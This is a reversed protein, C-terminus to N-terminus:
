QSGSSAAATAAEVGPYINLVSALDMLKLVRSVPGDAVVALNLTAGSEAAKRHVITLARIGASDCFSTTTLDAVVVTVGPAFAERLQTVVHDANTMDIEEPLLVVSGPLM